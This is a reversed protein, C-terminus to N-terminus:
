WHFEYYFWGPIIEELFMENDGVSPNEKWEWGIETEILEFDAYALCHTLGKPTGDPSFLVGLQKQETFSSFLPFYLGSHHITLVGTKEKRIILFLINQKEFEQDAITEEAWRTLSQGFSSVAFVKGKKTFPVITIVILLLIVISLFLYRHKKM